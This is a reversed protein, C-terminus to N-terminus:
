ENNNEKMSENIYQEIMERESDSVENLNFGNETELLSSVFVEEVGDLKYCIYEKNTEQNEIIDIVTIEIDNGDLNKVVLKEEM